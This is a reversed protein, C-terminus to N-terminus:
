DLLLARDLTWFPNQPLQITPTQTTSEKSNKEFINQISKSIYNAHRHRKLM